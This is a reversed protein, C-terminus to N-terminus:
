HEARLRWNLERIPTCELPVVAEVEINRAVRSYRQGSKTAQRRAVTRTGDRHRDNRISPARDSNVDVGIARPRVLLVRQQDDGALGLRNVM